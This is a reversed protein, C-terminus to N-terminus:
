FNVSLILDNNKKHNEKLMRRLWRASTGISSTMRYCDQSYHFPFKLFESIILVFRSIMLLGQEIKIVKQHHFSKEVGHTETHHSVSVERYWTHTDLIVYLWHLINHFICNILSIRTLELFIFCKLVRMCQCCYMILLLAIINKANM